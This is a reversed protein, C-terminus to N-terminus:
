KISLKCHQNRILLEARATISMDQTAEDRLM